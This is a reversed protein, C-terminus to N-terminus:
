ILLNLNVIIVIIVFCFRLVQFTTSLKEDSQSKQKVTIGEPQNFDPVPLDSMDQTQTDRGLDPQSIPFGIDQIQTKAVGFDVQKFFLM